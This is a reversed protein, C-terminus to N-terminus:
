GYHPREVQPEAVDYLAYLSGVGGATTHGEVDTM